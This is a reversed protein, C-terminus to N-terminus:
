FPGRYEAVPIAALRSELRMLVNKLKVPGLMVVSVAHELLRTAKSRAQLDICCPSDEITLNEVGTESLNSGRM